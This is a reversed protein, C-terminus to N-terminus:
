FVVSSNTWVVVDKPRDEEYCMEPDKEPGYFIDMPEYPEFEEASDWMSVEGSVNRPHNHFADLVSMYEFGTLNKSAGRLGPNGEEAAVNSVISICLLQAGNLDTWVIKSTVRGSVTDPWVSSTSRDNLGTVLPCQTNTCLAESSTPYPIYNVTIANTVTGDYVERGPNNFKVIMDLNQGRVPTAPNLALETFKFVSGGNSCDTISGEVGVFPTVVASLAAFFMHVLPRM